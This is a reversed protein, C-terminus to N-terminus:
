IVGLFRGWEGSLEGGPYYHFRMEWKVKYKTNQM